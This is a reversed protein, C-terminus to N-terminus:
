RGAQSGLCTTRIREPTSNHHRLVFGGPRLVGMRREPLNTCPSIPWLVQEFRQQM